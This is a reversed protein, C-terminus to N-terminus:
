RLLGGNPAQMDFFCCFPFHGIKDYLTQFHKEDFQKRSGLKALCIDQGKGRSKWEKVIMRPIGEGIQKQQMDEEKEELRWATSLFRYNVLFKLHHEIISIVHGCIWKYIYLVCM